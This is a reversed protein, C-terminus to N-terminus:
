YYPKLYFIVSYGETAEIKYLKFDCHVYNLM